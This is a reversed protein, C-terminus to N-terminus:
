LPDGGGRGEGARGQGGGGKGRQDCAGEGEGAREELAVRGRVLGGGVMDSPSAWGAVPGVPAELPQTASSPRLRPSGRPEFRRSRSLPRGSASRASALAARNEGSFLGGIRDVTEERATAPSVGAGAGRGDKAVLPAAAATSCLLPRRRRRRRRRRMTLTATKAAGRSAETPEDPQVQLSPAARRVRSSCGIVESGVSRGQDQLWAGGLEGIESRKVMCAAGARERMASTKESRHPGSLHCFDPRGVVASALTV